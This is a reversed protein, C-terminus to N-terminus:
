RNAFRIVRELLLCIFNSLLDYLTDVTGADTLVTKAELSRNGWLYGLQGDLSM